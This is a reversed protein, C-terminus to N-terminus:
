SLSKLASMNCLAMENAEHLSQCITRSGVAAADALDTAKDARAGAKEAVAAVASWWLTVASGWFAASLLWFTVSWGSHLSMQALSLQRM